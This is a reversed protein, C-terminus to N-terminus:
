VFIRHLFTQVFDILWLRPHMRGSLFHQRIIKLKQECFISMVYGVVCNWKRHHYQNIVMISRESATTIYSQQVSRELQKNGDFYQKLTYQALSSITTYNKKRQWIAEFCSSTPLSCRSISFRCSSIRFSCASWCVFLSSIESMSETRLAVDPIQSLSCLETSLIM